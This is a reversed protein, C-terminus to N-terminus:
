FCTCMNPCSPTGLSLLAIRARTQELSRVALSRARVTDLFARRQYCCFTIFHLDGFGTIRKLNKPMPSFIPGGKGFGFPYAV